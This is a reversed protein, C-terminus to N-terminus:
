ATCSIISCICDCAILEGPAISANENATDCVASSIACHDGVDSVDPEVPVLTSKNRGTRSWSLDVTGVVGVIEVVDLERLGVVDDEECM